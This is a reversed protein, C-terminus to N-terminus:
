KAASNLDSLFSKLDLGRNISVIEITDQAAGRCGPCDLRYKKFIKLTGKSHKLVDHVTMDKTIKMGHDKHHRPTTDAGVRSIFIIIGTDCYKLFM